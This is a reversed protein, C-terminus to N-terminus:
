IMITLSTVTEKEDTIKPPKGLVEKFYDYWNKVREKKNRGKLIARKTTKRGTIESILKWSDQHKNTRNSQEILTVKNNLEEGFITTYVDELAGKKFNLEEQREDTPNTYAAHPINTQTHLIYTVREDDRYKMNKQKAKKPIMEKATEKNATIFHQYKNDITDTHDNQLIPFRNYLQILYRHQLDQNSKLISWDNKETRSSAAKTRLSLRLIAGLVQHDSEVSGFISYAECSKLSMKSKRNILIYDIQFKCNNM